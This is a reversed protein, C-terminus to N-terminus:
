NLLPGGEVLRSRLLELQRRLSADHVTDGIRIVLGGKISKDPIITVRAKKGTFLDLREQMHKEQAPTLEAATRVEVPVIGLKEDMLGRFAEIVDPLLAERNKDIILHLFNMTEKGVRSGFLTTFVGAKKESAVVPSELLLRLERSEQLVAAIMELDKATRETVRHEDSLMMLGMAYRRAVRVNKM